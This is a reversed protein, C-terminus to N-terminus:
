DRVLDRGAKTLAPATRPTGSEKCIKAIFDRSFFSPARM